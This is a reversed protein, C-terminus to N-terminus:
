YLQGVTGLPIKGDSDKAGLNIEPHSLLLEIVYQHGCWAAFHLPTSGKKNRANVTCNGYSLLAQLAPLRGYRFSFIKAALGAM